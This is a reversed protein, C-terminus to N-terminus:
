PQGLCRRLFRHLRNEYSSNKVPHFIGRILWFYPLPYWTVHKLSNLTQIPFGLHQILTAIRLECYIDDAYLPDHRPDAIADLVERSFQLVALPVVGIAEAQLEVPLRPVDRFWLWPKGRDGQRKIQSCLLGEFPHFLPALPVNCRVDWEFFVVHRSKVEDRHDKWWNRINRDVNRWAHHREEGEYQTSNCRHQRIDPNAATFEAQHPLGSALTTLWVLEPPSEQESPSAANM